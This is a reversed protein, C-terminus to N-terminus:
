HRAALCASCVSLGDGIRRRDYGRRQASERSSGGPAASAIRLATALIVITVSEQPTAYFDWGTCPYFVVFGGSWVLLALMAVGGLVGVPYAYRPAFAILLATRIQDAIVQM